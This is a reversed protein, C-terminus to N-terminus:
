LAGGAGGGGGQNYISIDIKRVVWFTKGERRVRLLLTPGSSASERNRSVIVKYYSEVLM